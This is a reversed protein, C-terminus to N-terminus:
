LLGASIFVRGPRYDPRVGEPSYWYGAEKPQGNETLSVFLLFRTHFGSVCIQGDAKLVGEPDQEILPAAASGLLDALEGEPGLRPVLLDVGKQQLVPPAQAEARGDGGLGGELPLDAGLAGAPLGPPGNPGGGHAGLGLLGQGELPLLTFGGPGALAALLPLRLLLPLKGEAPLFSPLLPLSM